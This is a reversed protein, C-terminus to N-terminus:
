GNIAEAQDSYKRFAAALQDNTFVTDSTVTEGNGVADAQIAAAEVLLKDSKLEVEPARTLDHEDVVFNQVRLADGLPTTEASDGELIKTYAYTYTSSNAAGSAESICVWDGVDDGLAITSDGEDVLELLEKNEPTIVEEEEEDYVKASDAIKPVTITIFAIAEESGTNKVAVSSFEETPYVMVADTITGEGLAEIDGDGVLEINVNGISVKKQHSGDYDVLWAFATGCLCVGLLATAAAFAKVRRRRVNGNQNTGNQDTENQNMKKQTM